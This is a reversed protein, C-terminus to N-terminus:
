MYIMPTSPSFSIGHQTKIAPYSVFWLNEGYRSFCAPAKRRMKLHITAEMDSLMSNVYRNASEFYSFYNKEYLLWSLEVLYNETETTYFIKM